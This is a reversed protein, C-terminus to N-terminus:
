EQLFTATNVAPKYIKPLGEPLVVTYSKDDGVTVTDAEDLQNVLVTGPAYDSFTITREISANDVNSLVVLVDNRSFAYFNDDCWREVAPYNWWKEQSRIANVKGIFKYM